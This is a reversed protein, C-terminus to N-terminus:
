TRPAVRGGMIMAYADRDGAYCGCSAQELADRDVITLAGRSYDIIGRRHLDTAANTVGVRRVGLMVSLFEQTLQLEPSRARDQAMLLWRALRAPLLHGNICAASTAMSRGTLVTYRQIATRLRENRRVAAAFAGVEICLAEGQGQVLAASPARSVGMATHAGVVGEFGVLMVELRSGGSEAILSVCGSYPFYVRSVTENQEHLEEEFQLIEVGGLTALYRADRAPLSSLISNPSPRTRQIDQRPSLRRQRRCPGM